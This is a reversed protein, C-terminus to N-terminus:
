DLVAAAHNLSQFFEERREKSLDLIRQLLGTFNNGALHNFHSKSGEKFVTLFKEFSEESDNFSYCTIEILYPM